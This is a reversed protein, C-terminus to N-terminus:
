IQLKKLCQSGFQKQSHNKLAQRAAYKGINPAIARLVSGSGAAAFMIGLFAIMTNRAEDNMENDITFLSEFGYIYALQQALRLSFAFNQMIDTPITVAMALGGPLGLIFAAGSSQTVNTTIFKKAANDMQELSVLEAVNKSEVDTGNLRYTEILFATRNIKVGPFSMAKELLLILPNENLELDSLELQSFDDASDTVFESLYLNDNM